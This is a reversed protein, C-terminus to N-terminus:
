GLYIMEDVLVRCKTGKAAMRAKSIRTLVEDLSHICARVREGHVLIDDLYPSATKELRLLIMMICRQFTAPANALGFPMRVFEWHGSPTSFATKERSAEALPIQWYALRLDLLCFVKSKGLLDLMADVTPMLFTDRKTIKNLERFDICIRKEGDKKNVAVISASWPSSSPQIIGLSLMMRVEKEIIELEVQSYRYMPIHIPRHSGTDIIHECVITNSLRITNTEFVQAHKRLLEEVEKWEQKTLIEGIKIGFPASNPAAVQVGAMRLDLGVKEGGETLFTFCSKDRYEQWDEWEEGCSSYMMDEVWQPDDEQEWGELLMQWAERQRTGLSVTDMGGHWAADLEAQHRRADHALWDRGTYDEWVVERESHQAFYEVAGRRSYFESDAFYEARCRHRWPDFELRPEEGWSMCDRQGKKKDGESPQEAKGDELEELELLTDLFFQEVESASDSDREGESVWEELWDNRQIWIDEEDLSEDWWGDVDEDGDIEIGAEGEGPSPEYITPPGFAWRM